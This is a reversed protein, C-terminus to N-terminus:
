ARRSAFRPIAWFFQRKPWTAHRSCLQCPKPMNRMHRCVAAAGRRDVQRRAAGCWVLLQQVARAFARRTHPNRIQASFFEFFRYSAREGEAAILAPVTRSANVDAIIEVQHITAPFHETM